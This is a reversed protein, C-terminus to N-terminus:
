SVVRWTKGFSQLTPYVAEIPAVMKIPQGTVLREVEIEYEEGTHLSSSSYTKPLFVARMKTTHVVNQLGLEFSGDPMLSVEELDARKIETTHPPLATEKVTQHHTRWEDATLNYGLADFWYAEAISRKILVAPDTPLYRHETNQFVARVRKVNDERPLDFLREVSLTDQVNYWRQWILITLAIDSNRVQVGRWSPNTDLMIEVMRKLTPVPTPTSM